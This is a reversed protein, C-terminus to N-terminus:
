VSTKRVRIAKRSIFRRRPHDAHLAFGSHRTLLSRRGDGQMSRRSPRLFVLGRIPYTLLPVRRGRGNSFYCGRGTAGGDEQIGRRSGPLRFISKNRPPRASLAASTVFSRECDSMEVTSFRLKRLRRGTRGASSACEIAVARGTDHVGRPELLGTVGRAGPTM